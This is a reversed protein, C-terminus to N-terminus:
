DRELNIGWDAKKMEAGYHILGYIAGYDHCRWKGKYWGFNHRSVDHLFAPVENPMKTRKSETYPQTRHMCLVKGDASIWEVPVFWDKVWALDGSLGCVEYWILHEHVNNFSGSEEIKIVKKHDLNFVHVGRTAGRGLPEGLFAQLINAATDGENM